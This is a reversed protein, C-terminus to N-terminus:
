STARKQGSVLTGKCIGLLRTEPDHHNLQETTENQNFDGPRRFDGIHQLPCIGCGCCGRSVLM